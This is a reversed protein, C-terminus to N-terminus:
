LSRNFSLLYIRDFISLICFHSSATANIQKVLYFNMANKLNRCHKVTPHSLPSLSRLGLRRVYISRDM